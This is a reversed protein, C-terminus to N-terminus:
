EANQVAEVMRVADFTQQVDHVRVIKAGNIVAQVALGLSAPLRQDVARGLQHGILSKRSVGILIPCQTQSIMDPVNKLLLCNHNLSKGFGIGPDLVVDDLPLNALQCASFRQQFFAMVESVVDTYHPESQMTKPEGQMHMMCVPVALQAAAQMAGDARLGYVDNIMQAGAAVAERMVTPKYTDISLPTDLVNSLKEIVPIVRDLEQQLSVEDAGPRTSEGGIDLIDAGQEVLAQAHRVADDVTRFQGGDSFSDPTLNIIGMIAASSRRLLPRVKNETM